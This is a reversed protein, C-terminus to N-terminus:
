SYKPFTGRFIDEAFLREKYLKLTIMQNDTIEKFQVGMGPTSNLVDSLLGKVHVVGGKLTISSGNEMPMTIEMESGVPFPNTKRISLGGESLISTYLTYEKGRHVVHVKKNVSVRLHKRKTERPSFINELTDYLEEIRVPKTLYGACGLNKCNEVIDPTLDTHVIIVPISSTKENKKIHQLTM